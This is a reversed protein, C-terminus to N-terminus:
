ASDKGHRSLLLYIFKYLGYYALIALLLEM